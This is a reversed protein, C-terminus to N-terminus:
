CVVLLLCALLLPLSSALFLLCPASLPCTLLPLASVADSLKDRGKAKLGWSQTWRARAVNLADYAAGVGTISSPYAHPALLLQRGRAATPAGGRFLPSPDSLQNRAVATKDTVFGDIKTTKQTQTHKRTHQTHKSTCSLPHRLARGGCVRTVTAATEWVGGGDRIEAIIEGGWNMGRYTGACGGTGDQGMGSVSILADADVARIADVASNVLELGRACRGCTRDWM